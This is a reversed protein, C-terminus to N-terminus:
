VPPHAKLTGTGRIAKLASRCICAIGSAELVFRAHHFPSPWKLSEGLHNFTAARLFVFGGLIVGGAYLLAYQRWAGRVGSGALTLATLVVIATAVVFWVQVIRRHRYWGETEAMVRGVDRLATQLDLQKNIGLLLVSTGV